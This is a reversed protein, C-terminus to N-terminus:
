STSSPSRKLSTTRLTTAQGALRPPRTASNRVRMSASRSTTASLWLLRVSDTHILVLTNSAALRSSSASTMRLEAVIFSEYAFYASKQDADMSKVRRNLADYAFYTPANRPNLTKVTNGALDYGFYGTQQVPSLSAVVRNMKDYAFYSAPSLEGPMLTKVLNGVSDYGFYTARNLADMAAVRRNNADYGFYAPAGTSEHHARTIAAAIEAEQEQTLALNATIVRYTPM